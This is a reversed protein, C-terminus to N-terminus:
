GRMLNAWDPVKSVYKDWLNGTISASGDRLASVFEPTLTGEAILNELFEEFDKNGESYIFVLVGEFIDERNKLFDFGFKCFELVDKFYSAGYKQELMWQSGVAFGMLFEVAMRMGLRVGADHADLGEDSAANIIERNCEIFRAFSNRSIGTQLSWYISVDGRFKMGKFVGFM